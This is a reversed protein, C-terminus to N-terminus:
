SLSDYLTHQACCLRVQIVHGRISSTIKLFIKKKLVCINWSNNLNDQRENKLGLLASLITLTYM